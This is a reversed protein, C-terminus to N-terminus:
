VHCCFLLPPPNNHLNGPTTMCLLALKLTTMVLAREDLHGHSVTVGEVEHCYLLSVRVRVAICLIECLAKCM